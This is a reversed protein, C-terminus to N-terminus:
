DNATKVAKNNPVSLALSRIAASSHAKRVLSSISFTVPRSNSKLSLDMGSGSPPTM